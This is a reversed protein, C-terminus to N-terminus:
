LRNRFWACAQACAECRGGFCSDHEALALQRLSKAYRSSRRRDVLARQSPTMVSKQWDLLCSAPLAHPCSPLDVPDRAAGSLGRAKKTDVAAHCWACQKLDEPRARPEKCPCRRVGQRRVAIASTSVVM